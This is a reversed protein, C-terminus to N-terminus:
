DPEQTEVVQLRWQSKTLRDGTHVCDTCNSTATIWDDIEFTTDHKKLATMLMARIGCVSDNPKRCENRQFPCVNIIRRKTDM